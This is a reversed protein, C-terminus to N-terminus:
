SGSNKPTSEAPILKLQRNERSGERITVNEGQNEFPQLFEPDQYAGAEIDEWAFLKYEGPSIGKLSFHGSTDTATTKFLEMRERRAADPVLVVTAGSALQGNAGAVAGDVEGGNPSVLIDLVGAAGRTLDLGADLADADGIRISKVYFTPPLGRLQVSYSDANVNDLTFTGDDNVRALAGGMPMPGQPMLSINVSGLNVEATGDVRVQGKLSLGPTLLVNVDDLNTNGIDVLQRVRHSTNEESWQVMLLYSGPTLDRIEFTGGQNAGTMYSSNPLASDKAVMRISVFPPMGQGTPNVIHGRIRVTRTKRLSIDVGDLVAGPAVDIATAGTPDNTGPFYTPAYGENAEAAPKRDQVVSMGNRPRYTASLYYKGPALGFVRYEGQDDTSAYGPSTMQRKGRVFAYRMARIQANEVPEGDEDVVKGTIVGQPALRFVLDRTRQGPGLLLPAGPREPGRAGYQFRVYGNREASINYRGPDINEIVFHGTSDTIAGLNANARGGLNNMTIQAKKVPEGTLGNVAQGEILCLDEPRTPPAPPTNYQQPPGAQSSVTGPQQAAALLPFCLLAFWVFRM